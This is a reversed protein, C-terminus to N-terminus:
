PMPSDSRGRELSGGGWCPAAASVSCNTGISVHYGESPAESEGHGRQDFQVVRGRQVLSRALHDWIELTDVLGHLCVFHPPGTGAAEVRLAHGGVRVREM